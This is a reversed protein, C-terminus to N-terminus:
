DEEFEHIVGEFENQTLDEENLWYDSTIFSVTGNESSKIDWIIHDAEPFPLEGSLQKGFLRKILNRDSLGSCIAKLVIEKTLEVAGKQQFKIELTILSAKTEPFKGNYAKHLLQSINFLPFHLSIDSYDEAVEDELMDHSINQIQGQNLESGLKYSLVIAAAEDPEHDQIAMFLLERLESPDANGADPFDMRDLLEIYDQDSWAGEIEYITKLNEIKVSCKM